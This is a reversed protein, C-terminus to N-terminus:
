KQPCQSNNQLSKEYDSVIKEKSEIVDQILSKITERSYMDVSNQILKLKYIDDIIEHMM